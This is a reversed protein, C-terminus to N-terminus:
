QENDSEEEATEIRQQRLAADTLSNSLRIEKDQDASQYTPVDPLLGDQAFQEQLERTKAPAEEELATLREQSIRTLKEADPGIATLQSIYHSVYQWIVADYVEDLTNLAEPATLPIDAADNAEVALLVDEILDTFGHVIGTVASPIFEARMLALRLSVAARGAQAEFSTSKWREAVEPEGTLIQPRNDIMDFTTAGADRLTIRLRVNALYIDKLPPPAYEDYFELLFAYDDTNWYQETLPPTFDQDLFFQLYDNETLEGLVTEEIAPHNDICQNPPEETPSDVDADTQSDSTSQQGDNTPTQPEAPSQTGTGAYSGSPAMVATPGYKFWSRTIPSTTQSGDAPIPGLYHRLAVETYKQRKVRTGMQWNLGNGEVADRLGQDIRQLVEQETLSGGQSQPDNPDNNM